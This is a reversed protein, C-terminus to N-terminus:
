VFKENKIFNVVMKYCIKAWNKLEEGSLNKGSVEEALSKVVTIFVETKIQLNEENEGLFDSLFSKAKQFIELELSKFEDTKQFFVAASSLSKRLEKEEAESQFFYEIVALLREEHSKEAGNLIEEMRLWTKQTEIKHLNFLLSEKNPYYQYFSGISIGAAEAVKNTTFGSAGYKRLVRTAAQLIYENLDQSRRQVPTKRLELETKRKM